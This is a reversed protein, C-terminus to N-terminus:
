IKFDNRKTIAKVFNILNDEIKTGKEKCVPCINTYGYFKRKCSPCEYISKIKIKKM